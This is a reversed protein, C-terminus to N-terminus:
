YWMTYVSGENEFTDWILKQDDRPEVSGTQKKMFLIQFYLVNQKKCQHITGTHYQLSQTATYWLTIDVKM